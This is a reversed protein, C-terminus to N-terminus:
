DINERRFVYLAGYPDYPSSNKEHLILGVNHFLKLENELLRYKQPVTNNLVAPSYTWTYTFFYKKTYEIINKLTAYYEADNVIHFLLDLCLVVDAKLDQKFGSNSLIFRRDPYKKINRNIIVDSFDIGVYNNCPRLGGVTKSFFNRSEWFTLDGCGVDICENKILKEAYKNIIGWKWFRYDGKSGKGSDRGSAYNKNFYQKEITFGGYVTKGM